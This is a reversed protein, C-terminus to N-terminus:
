LRIPAHSHRGLVTCIVVSGLVYGIAQIGMYATVIFRLSIHLLHFVRLVTSRTIEVCLAMHEQTPEWLGPRGALVPMNRIQYYPQSLVATWKTRIVTWSCSQQDHQQRSSPCCQSVSSMDIQATYRDFPASPQADAAQLALTFTWPLSAEDGISLNYSHGGAKFHWVCGPTPLSSADHMQGGGNFYSVADVSITMAQSITDVHVVSTAVHVYTSHADATYGTWLTSTRTSFGYSDPWCLPLLLTLVGIVAISAWLLAPWLRNKCPSLPVSSSKVTAAAVPARMTATTALTM